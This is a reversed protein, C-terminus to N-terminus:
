FTCIKSTKLVIEFNFISEVPWAVSKTSKSTLPNVVAVASPKDPRDEAEGVVGPQGKIDRRQRVPVTEGEHGQELEVLGDCVPADKLGLIEGVAVTEIPVGRAEREIRPAISWAPDMSGVAELLDVEDVVVAAQAAIDIAHKLEAGSGIGLDAHVVEHLVETIVAHIVILVEAAFDRAQAPSSYNDNCV